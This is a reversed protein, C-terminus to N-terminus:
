FSAVDLINKKGLSLMLLRDIGLAVGSCQPLGQDLAKLFDEDLTIPELNNEIRQKNELEFRTRQESSSDLEDFGNALEMGDIYLEFRQARGNKIKALAAQSVPYSHIFVAGKLHPEISDLMLLDLWDNKSMNSPPVLKPKQQQWINALQQRSATHVNEIKTHRNFAERYSLSHMKLNPLFLSVLAFVEAMLDFMNFDLRYWELLMFELRHRPSALDERFVHALQYIDGSGNALLRKMFFEPSPQLYQHGVKLSLTQPDPSTSQGLHPTDVELVKHQYFFYRVQQLLKAREKIIIASPKSELSM